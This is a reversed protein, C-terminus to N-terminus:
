GLKGPLYVLGLAQMVRQLKRAVETDRTRNAYYMGMSLTENRAPAIEMLRYIHPKLESIRDKSFDMKALFLEASICRANKDLAEQAFKEARDDGSEAVMKIEADFYM